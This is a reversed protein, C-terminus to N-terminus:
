WSRKNMQQQRSAPLSIASAPSPLALGRRYRRGTRSGARQHRHRCLRAAAHQHAPFGARALQAPNDSPQQGLNPPCGPGPFHYRVTPVPDFGIDPEVPHEEPPQGPEDGPHVPQACGDCPGSGEQLYRTQNTLEIAAAIPPGSLFAQIATPDTVPVKALERTAAAVAAHKLREPDPNVVEAVPPPASSNAIREFWAAFVDKLPSNEILGSVYERTLQVVETHGLGPLQLANAVATAALEAAQDVLRRTANDQKEGADLAALRNKEQDADAPPADFGAQRTAAAEAQALGPPRVSLAVAQM